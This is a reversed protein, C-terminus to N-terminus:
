EYRLAETPNLKSAREAPLLGFVIGVLASVLFAISISVPSIPIQLGEVFSQALLPIGVGVVIGILGGGLSILLAETLFQRRIARRSAGLAMRLGIERTRETVTVLMINMIGIGSIILAIASILLLVLTMATAINGAAALIQTLNEARYVAGSRKRRQIVQLMAETAAPVYSPAIASAYIQDVYQSGTLISMTSIPMMLTERTIESQGFTEAGEEFIGIITFELGLVKLKQDERWGDPYLVRGLQKTVLGIKSHLRDDESDFFRGSLVKLNRIIKFDPDSGILTIQRPRSELIVPARGSVVASAASLNPVNERVAALDALTLEDAQSRTGSISPGGEHVTYMLNSGVGEIQNLVYDRSTLAITAVLIVSATGIVMGLGTLATRAMNVRLADLAFAFSERLDRAFASIRTAEHTVKRTSATMPTPSPSFTDM